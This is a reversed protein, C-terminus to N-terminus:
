KIFKVMSQSYKLFDNSSNIYEEETRCPAIQNKPKRLPELMYYVEGVWDGSNLVNLPCVTNHMIAKTAELLNVRQYENLPLLVSFDSIPQLSAQWIMNERVYELYEEFSPLTTTAAPNTKWLAAGPHQGYYSKRLQEKLLANENILFAMKDNLDVENM